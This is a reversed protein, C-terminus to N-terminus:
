RGGRISFKKQKLPSSNKNGKRGPLVSNNRNGSQGSFPVDERLGPIGMEISQTATTPKRPNGADAAANGEPDTWRAIQQVAAPNMISSAMSGAFVALSEPTRTHEAIRAPTDLFPVRQIEGSTAYAAGAVLGGSMGKMQYHDWVHGVTAGMQLTALAPSEQLFAPIEVGGIKMTGLKRKDEKTTGYYGTIKDRLAYGITLLALGVTGKKMGRM